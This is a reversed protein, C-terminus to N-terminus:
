NDTPLIRNIYFVRRKFRGTESEIEQVGYAYLSNRPGYSLKNEERNSRAVDGQVGTKIPEESKGELVQNDHIIKTRIKNDFLYLLALKEGVPKVKVFQELQFTKVDNIEFSNDWVLDGNPKFGMVVAHTYFYGEFIRGDQIIGRNRAIFYPNFFGITARDIPTYKPYFAEGLLLFQNNYPIIEHVLFRYTLRIKKGKIKRRQIRSKVREERKAKMYKFFNQLDAFHYYRTQAIGEPNISSIFIGKSYESSRTGYVGAVLQSQDPMKILRGFILHTNDEPNLPVNTILNGEADYNKIWITRQRKYNMASILIDFSGDDNVQIQNLEGAENFMGPLVRSKNTLFSFYLVVPVRNYYGGALIANDTVKFETPVFPIYGKVRYQVYNNTKDDVVYLLLDNKSFDKYRMLIYLSNNHFSYTVPQFNKEIPIYGNWRETLATDLRVVHVKPARSVTVVRHLFVGHDEAPLVKFSEDRGDVEMEFRHSQLVQMPPQSQAYAGSILLLLLINTHWWKTSTSSMM